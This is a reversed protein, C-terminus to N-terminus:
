YCEHCLRKLMDKLPEGLGQNDLEIATAKLRDAVSIINGLELLRIEYRLEKILKETTDELSGNNM